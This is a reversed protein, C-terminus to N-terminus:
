TVKDASDVFLVGGKVKPQNAIIGVPRGEIRALTTIVEAAFLKKIEFLSNEDVLQDMAEYMDFPANQNEPIIEELSRGEKNSAATALKRPAKSLEGPLLVFLSTSGRDCNRM